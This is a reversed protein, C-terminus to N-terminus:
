VRIGGLYRDVLPAEVARWENAYRSHMDCLKQEIAPAVGLEVLADRAEVLQPICRGPSGM